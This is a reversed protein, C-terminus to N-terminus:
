SAHRRLKLPETCGRKKAMRPWMIRGFLPYVWSPTLPRAFSATASQPVPLGQALADAAADLDAVRRALPSEEPRRGQIVGGVGFALAGGWEAGVKQAFLRCIDIAVQCHEVEPFGCQTLVALRRPRASLRGSEHAAQWTELLAVVHSPLSDVYVPFSLVVLDAEDVAGLLEVEHGVPFRRGIAQTRIDFGRAGLREGLAEAFSRSASEGPKPSGILMLARSM